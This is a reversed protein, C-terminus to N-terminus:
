QYQSAALASRSSPKRGRSGACVRSSVTSSRTDRLTTKGFRVALTQAAPPLSTLSSAAALLCAMRWQFRKSTSTTKVAATPTALKATSSSTLAWVAPLAGPITALHRWILNVFPVGLTARLDAFLDATEGTAQDEPIAAIPDVSM